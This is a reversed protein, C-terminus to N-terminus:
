PNVTKTIKCAIQTKLQLSTTPVACNVFDDYIVKGIWEIEHGQKKRQIDFWLYFDRIQSITQYKLNGNVQALNYINAQKWVDSQSKRDKKLWSGDQLFLNGSEKKYASLSVWEQTYVYNTSLMFVLTILM